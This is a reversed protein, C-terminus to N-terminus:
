YSEGFYVKRASADKVIESPKGQSTIKGDSLILINDAIQLVNEFAHDSILITINRTVQLKVITDKIMEITIPDIASFIEDM